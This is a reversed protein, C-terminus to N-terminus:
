GTTSMCQWLGLNYSKCVCILTHSCCDCYIVSDGPKQQFDKGYKHSINKDTRTFAFVSFARFLVLLHETLQQQGTVTPGTHLQIFLVSLSVSILFPQAARYRRQSIFAKRKILLSSQSGHSRELHCYPLTSPSFLSHSSIHLIYFSSVTFFYNKFNSIRSM